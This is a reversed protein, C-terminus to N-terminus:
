FKLFTEHDKAPCETYPTEPAWHNLHVKFIHLLLM